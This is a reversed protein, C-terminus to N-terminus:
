AQQITLIYFRDLVESLVKKFSMGSVNYLKGTDRMMVNFSMGSVNYLKGTDRMMVDSSMTEYINIDFSFARLIRYTSAGCLLMYILCRNSSYSVHFNVLVREMYLQIAQYPPYQIGGHLISIGM